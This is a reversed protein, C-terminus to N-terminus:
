VVITGDHSYAKYESCKYATAGHHSTKGVFIDRLNTRMRMNFYWIHKALLFLDIYFAKSNSIEDIRDFYYSLVALIPSINVVSKIFMYETLM